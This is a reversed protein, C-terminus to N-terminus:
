CKQHMLRLFFEGTINNGSTLNMPTEVAITVSGKASLNTETTVTKQLCLCM